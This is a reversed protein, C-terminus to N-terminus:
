SGTPGMVVIGVVIISSSAAHIILSTQIRILTHTTTRIYIRLRLLRLWVVLGLGANRGVLHRAHGHRHRSHHRRGHVHAVRHHVGVHEAHRWHSTSEHRHRSGRGRKVQRSGFVFDFKKDPPELKLCTTLKTSLTFSIYLLVQGLVKRFETLYSLLYHHSVSCGSSSPSKSEHSHDKGIFLFGRPGLFNNEILIYPSAM